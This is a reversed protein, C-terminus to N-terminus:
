RQLHNIVAEYRNPEASVPSITLTFTGLSFHKFEYQGAKLKARRPSFFMLSFSEGKVGEAVNTKYEINKVNLLQLMEPRRMSEQWIEFDTNTFPLFHESKFSLVPDSLIEAPLPFLHDTKTTQGFATGNLNLTAAAISAVGLAQIFNRRTIM